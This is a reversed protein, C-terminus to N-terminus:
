SLGGTAALFISVVLAVFIIALVVKDSVSSLLKEGHEKKSWIYVAIGPAYLFSMIALGTAGTAFCLLLSYAVGVIGLIRYLPVSGNVKGAFSGSETFTLKVLYAASLLYPPLIMGASIVYFFQYTNDSFMMIILFAEVVAASIVLTAVPAGKENTKAFIRPFCASQQAAEFPSEATLVTYGLMAGILSMAVGINILIAGWDGVAAQMLQAMPPNELAALDELPLVGLSLLSVMLYIALVCFFAIITAKGVDGSFKARGSIAVAGEIGIFVWMTTTLAATVKDIGSLTAGTDPNVTVASLNAVFVDPNFKGLFIIAVLAVFLPVLKSITIVANLAAAETVGRSVVLVYFWVIISAGIISPLNNGAGFVPFFYALASFLLASFSVTCLIASIWYGWASCFGVFQGFGESAYSYIGGKLNPKIRSLAFFTLVLCLVGVGSISWATIIAQGDAGRAAMDGCLSFVGAGIILTIVSTVLHFLGIGQSNDPTKAASPTQAPMYAGEIMRLKIASHVIMSKYGTFFAFLNGDLAYNHVERLIVDEDLM